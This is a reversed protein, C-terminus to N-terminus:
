KGQRQRKRLLRARRQSLDTLLASWRCAAQADLLGSGLMFDAQAQAEEVVRLAAEVDRMRHEYWKALETYLEPHRRGARRCELRLLEVGRAYQGTRRYHRLLDGVLKFHSQPSPEYECASELFPLEHEVRGASRWLRAIGHLNEPRQLAAHAPDELMEVFLLLLAGLSVIDQVNHDFVPVLRERGRGRLHDFYIQPIFAGEIDHRRVVGLVNAELSALACSGITPRYVIRAPWLLDVHPLDLPLRMRNLIARAELLPIDYGAGNFTVLAEFESLRQRLHVLLAPEHPYDEMFYQECVFHLTAPEGPVGYRFYGLGVLFAYTGTPGGLGTTETDLFAIRELAVPTDPPPMAGLAMLLDSDLSPSLRAPDPQPRFVYGRPHVCEGASFVPVEVRRIRVCGHANETLALDPLVSELALPPERKPVMSGCLESARKLLGGAVALARDIRKRRDQAKEDLEDFPM